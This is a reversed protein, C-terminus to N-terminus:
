GIWQNLAIAGSSEIFFFKLKRGDQMELILGSEGFFCVPEIRGRIERLGPITAHPNQLTGAPIEQQLVHLEYRVGVAEGNNATVTGTGRMTEISRMYTELERQLARLATDTSEYNGTWDSQVGNKARLIRWNEQYRSGFNAIWAREGSPMGMVEYQYVRDWKTLDPGIGARGVAHLALTVSIRTRQDGSKPPTGVRGRHQLDAIVQEAATVVAALMGGSGIFDEPIANAMEDIGATVNNIQVVAYTQHQGGVVDINVPFDSPPFRRILEQQITEELEKNGLLSVSRNWHHLDLRNQEVSRQDPRNVKWDSPRNEFIDHFRRADVLGRNATYNLEWLPFFLGATDPPMRRPDLGNPGVILGVQGNFLDTRADFGESRLRAVFLGLDDMHIPFKM